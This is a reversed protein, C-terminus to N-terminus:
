NKVNTSLKCGSACTYAYISIYVYAQTETRQARGRGPDLEASGTRGFRPAPAWSRRRHKGAPALEGSRCRAAGQRAPEGASVAVEGGLKGRRSGASGGAFGGPGLLGGHGPPVESPSRPPLGKRCRSREPKTRRREGPTPNTGWLPAKEGEEGRGGCRKGGFCGWRSQLPAPSRASSCCFNSKRNKSGGKASEEM